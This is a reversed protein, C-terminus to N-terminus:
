PTPNSRARSYSLQISHRGGSGFTTPELGAERVLEETQRWYDLFLNEFRAARVQLKKPLKRPNHGAKAYLEPKNWLAYLDFPTPARGTDEVFEASREALIQKAISWAVDPNSYQGSSSYAKWVSPLVQFRSVEGSTGRIVDPKASHGTEIQALAMQVAKEEPSILPPGSRLVGAHLAALFTAATLFAPLRM